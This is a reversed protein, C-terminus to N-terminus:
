DDVTLNKEVLDLVKGVLCHLAAWKHIAQLLLHLLAFVRLQVVALLSRALCGLSHLAIGHLYLTPNEIEIITTHKGLGFLSKCTLVDVLMGTNTIAACCGSM